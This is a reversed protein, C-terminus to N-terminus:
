PPPCPNKRSEVPIKTAVKGSICGVMRMLFTACSDNGAGSIVEAGFTEVVQEVVQGLPRAGRLDGDLLEDREKIKALSVPPVKLGM